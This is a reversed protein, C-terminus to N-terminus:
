LNKIFNDWDKSRGDVNHIKKYLRSRISGIGQLSKCTLTSIGTLPIEIKILMSVQMELPTISPCIEQLREVFNNRTKNLIVKLDEWDDIDLKNKTSANEFGEMGAVHCFDKYTQSKILNQESLKYLLIKNQALLNEQELIAKEQKIFQNELEDIYQKRNLLKKELEAIAMENESIYEESCKYKEYFIRELQNKTNLLEQKKLKFYITILICAIVLTTLGLYIIISQRKALQMIHNKEKTHLQYNYLAEAKQVAETNKRLNISDTYLIYKDTYQLAQTFLENSRAIKALALYAKQKQHHNGITCLKNYYIKASDIKGIKVYINALNLYYPAVNRNLLPRNNKLLELAKDYNGIQRYIYSVEASMINKLYLDELSNSIDIAKHYYFLTSDINRNATFGRAIDRLTKAILTSDKTKQAHYYANKFKPLALDFADQQLHILGMQSYIRSYLNHNDNNFETAKQFCELARPADGLDAYVRGAYFYAEPLFREDGKKEYYTLVPHIISDSLHPIYAKDNAKVTLLQYYMRDSKTLSDLDPVYQHLIYLASDPNSECIRNINLLQKSVESHTCSGYVFHLFAM